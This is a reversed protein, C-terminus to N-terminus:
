SGYSIIHRVRILVQTRSADRFPVILVTQSSEDDIQIVFNNQQEPSLDNWYPVVEM